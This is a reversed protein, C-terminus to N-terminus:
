PFPPWTPDTGAIEAEPHHKRILDEIEDVREAPVDVLMLVQGNELAEKFRELESNPVAAGILSSAWAGIGAGALTTLLVAGGGLVLGAPPFSVAVLGALLGTAGGVGAGREAARVVDSTQLVGAEPLDEMPTGEKAMVHIHREEIRGLLLEEVIRKTHDIDPVLFYLRRSM